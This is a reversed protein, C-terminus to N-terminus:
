NETRFNSHNELRSVIDLFFDNPVEKLQFHLISIFNLFFTELESKAM